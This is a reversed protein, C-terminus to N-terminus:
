FDVALNAAEESAKSIFDEASMAGIDGQTRRRVSVTGENVEKDGLILMYPIKEVQGERIKYGIKENRDDVTVRFNLAALKKELSKAYNLQGDGIPLLRIQESRM